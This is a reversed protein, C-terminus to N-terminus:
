RPHPKSSRPPNLHYCSYLLSLEGGGGGMQVYALREGCSRPMSPLIINICASITVAHVSVGRAFNSWDVPM